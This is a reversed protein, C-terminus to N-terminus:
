SKKNLLDAAREAIGQAMVDLGSSLFLDELAAYKNFLRELKESHQLLIEHQMSLRYYRAEMLENRDVVCISWLVTKFVGCFYKYDGSDKGRQEAIRPLLVKDMYMAQNYVEGVAVSEVGKAIKKQRDSYNGDKANRLSAALWLDSKIQNMSKKM